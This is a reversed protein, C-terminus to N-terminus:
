ERLEREVQSAIQQADVSQEGGPRFADIGKALIGRWALNQDVESLQGREMIREFLYLDREMQEDLRNRRLRIILVAIFVGLAVSHGLQFGATAHLWHGDPAGARVVQLIGHLAYGGTVGGLMYLPHNAAILRSASRVLSTFGDLLADMAETDASLM